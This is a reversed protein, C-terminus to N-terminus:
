PLRFRSPRPGSPCGRGEIIQQDHNAQEEESVLRELRDLLREAAAEGARRYAERVETDDGFVHIGLLDRFDPMGDSRLQAAFDPYFEAFIHDVTLPDEKVASYIKRTLRLSAHDRAALFRNLLSPRGAVM